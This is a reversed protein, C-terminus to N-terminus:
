KMLIKVRLWKVNSGENRESRGTNESGGGVAPPTGDQQVSPQLREAEIVAVRGNEIFDDSFKVSVEKGTLSRVPEQRDIKDM